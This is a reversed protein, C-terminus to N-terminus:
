IADAQSARAAREAEVTTKAAQAATLSEVYTAFKIRENRLHENKRAWNKM